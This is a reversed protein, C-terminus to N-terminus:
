MMKSRWCRFHDNREFLIRVKDWAEESLFNKTAHYREWFKDKDSEAAWSRISEIFPLKNLEEDREWGDIERRVEKRANILCRYVETGYNVKDLARDIYILAEKAELLQCSM